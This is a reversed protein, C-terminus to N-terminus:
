YRRLRKAAPAPHHRRQPNMTLGQGLNAGLRAQVIGGYGADDLIQGLVANLLNTRNLAPDPQGWNM